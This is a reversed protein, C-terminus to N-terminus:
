IPGIVRSKNKQMQKIIRLKERLKKNSLKSNLLKRIKGTVAQNRGSM